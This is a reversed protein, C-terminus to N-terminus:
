SAPIDSPEDAPHLKQARTPAIPILRHAATRGRGRPATFPALIGPSQPSGILRLLRRTRSAFPTGKDQDKGDADDATAALM